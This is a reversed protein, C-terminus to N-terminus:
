HVGVATWAQAVAGEAASNVGYLDRAAQITAARAMAFTANSPLMEVFARYFIKEIQERNAAGVGAAGQGSTRNVGGEVALYYAQNAIASNTHVGGNDEAGVYRKSYHDPDGFSQPDSMSRIGGPQIVDEGLLYDGRFPGGPASQFFFEASTAMIDSFAENLAGSENMYILQSSYDTVGHTLEHTVIDLAGSTYNWARGLGDTVGPPLGEGYVMLGDGYYGANLYFAGIISGPQRFVDARNVPHVISLIPIDQNDLGRRGFRRFYYDYTWGAYVHADVTAGDSWVNDPDNGLDNVNLSTVGNIFSITRTMNGRMDFTEISPPRLHDFTRFTAAVSDVSIKKTDGLVGTGRGVAADTKLDNYKLLLEGSRADIFYMFLGDDGFVRARYALAYGGAQLPLVVLEPLRNAGVIAGAQREIAARADEAGFAPAVDLEINRYLTGFISM